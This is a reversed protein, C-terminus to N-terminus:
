RTAEKLIKELQSLGFNHRWIEAKGPQWFVPEAQGQLQLIVTAEQNDKVLIGTITARDKIETPIQQLIEPAIENSIDSNSPGTIIQYYAM